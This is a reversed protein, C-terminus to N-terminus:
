TETKGVFLEELPTKLTDNWRNLFGFLAIISIIEIIEKQSFFQKLDEFHQHGTSNPVSGGSIAVAIAAKEKGSFHSSEKYNFVDDIKEKSVGLEIASHSTHTKCYTCGAANSSAYAILWRLELSLTDQEKEGRIIAMMFKLMLKMKEFISVKMKQKLVTKSLMMFSLMLDPKETMFLMSNPLFGMISETMKFIGEYEPFSKRSPIETNM